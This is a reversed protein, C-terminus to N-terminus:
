IRLLVPNHDGFVDPRVGMVGHNKPLLSKCNRYWLVWCARQICLGYETDNFLWARVPVLESGAVLPLYSITEVSSGATSCSLLLRIHDSTCNRSVIM